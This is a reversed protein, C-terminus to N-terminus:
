GPAWWRLGALGRYRLDSRRLDRNDCRGTALLRDLDYAEFAVLNPPGALLCALVRFDLILTVM